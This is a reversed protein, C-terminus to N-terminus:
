IRHSRGSNGLNTQDIPQFKNTHYM